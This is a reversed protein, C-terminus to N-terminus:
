PKRSICTAKVSLHAQFETLEHLLSFDNITDFHGILQNIQINVKRWSCQKTSVAQKLSTLM